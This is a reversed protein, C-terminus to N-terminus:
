CLPFLGFEEAMLIGELVTKAEAIEVSVKRKFSLAAASVVEGKDNREVLGAGYRGKDGDLAPQMQESCVGDFPLKNRGFWILWATILFRIVVVNEVRECGRDVSEPRKGCFHCWGSDVIGRKWLLQKTPLIEVCAKWGFIRIKSPVEIEWFKKWWPGYGKSCWTHDEMQSALAIQYASKVSFM